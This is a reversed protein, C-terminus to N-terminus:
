AEKAARAEQIIEQALHTPVIAYHSFEMSYVGRGQTLARLNTAYQQMEALPGEATIIAKGDRQNMGQVRARRSNLDSIVDGTFEDPTTIEFAYIPELLVPAAQMFAEKFAERGAIQFAIDKSDVPHEKGDYVAVRVDVIPYGAIVGQKLVAKVGKEISPEFSSSIHGGYVEWVYEFGSDRPLPEVRMHVEAFQGAGGSQKKHRYQASATRTITEKYPVKPVKTGLNVGFRGQIRRVATDVHADGMGSLITENTSPDHHWHLTPDEECMRTLTSGMKATDSKSQPYVAVSYLPKPFTPGRLEFAHGKACLTDGTLADGIKTAAGIDGAHLRDVEEQRNGRVVLLQSIRVEQDARPIYYTDGSAAVGGYVRFYTLKGVYPDAMTKFVLMALPAEDSVPYTEDGAEFPGRDAPNPALKVLLDLVARVGVGTEGSAALVPVLSGSVIAQRLGFVIEEETLEEGELYKMLLEDNGEAASEMLEFNLAEVQEAMEESVEARKGEAGIYAQQELVNIVGEFGSEAGIPLLLPIFQADFSAELSRLAQEFDANERDMKNVIVMHPLQEEEAYNWTLDTGVEVGAAADVLTLALDAVRLASKVEGVFDTYGPTDLLNIKHNRWEVPALATSLSIQRRIEEDDFDTVTSGDEIRGPRELAKGIVLAYETFMTKGASGHGILAVNRIQETTYEKM